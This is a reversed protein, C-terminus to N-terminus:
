HLSREGDKIMVVHSGKQRAVQWGLKEFTKVVERGNM